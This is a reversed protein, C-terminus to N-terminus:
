YRVNCLRYTRGMNCSSVGAVNMSIICGVDMKQKSRGREGGFQGDVEGGGKKGEKM